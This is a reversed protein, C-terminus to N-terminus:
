QKGEWINLCEIMDDVLADRSLTHLTEYNPYIYTDLMNVRAMRDFVEKYSTKLRRATAEICTAVFALRIETPTLEMIQEM